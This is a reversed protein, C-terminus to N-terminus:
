QGFVGRIENKLLNTNCIICISKVLKLLDTHYRFLHKSAQLDDLAVVIAILVRGFSLFIVNNWAQVEIWNKQASADRDMLM